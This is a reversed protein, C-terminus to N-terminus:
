IADDEPVKEEEEYQHEHHDYPERRHYNEQSICSCVEKNDTNVFVIKPIALASTLMLGKKAKAASAHHRITHNTKTKTQQNQRLAQVWFSRPIRPVDIRFRNWCNWAVARIGM